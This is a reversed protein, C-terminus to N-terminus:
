EHDLKKLYETVAPLVTKAFDFKKFPDTKDNKAQELYLYGAITRGPVFTGASDMKGIVFMLTESQPKRESPEVTGTKFIAHWQGGPLKREVWGNMAAATGRTGVQEMPRLLNERRWVFNNLPAPMLPFDTQKSRDSPEFRAKVKRGTAIRAATQAMTLNNWHCQSSGLFLSIIDQRTDQFHEPNFEVTQPLCRHMALPIKKPEKIDGILSPFYQQATDYFLGTAQESDPSIAVDFLDKLGKFLLAEGMNHAQPRPVTDNTFVGRGTENLRQIDFQLNKGKFTFEPAKSIPRLVKAWDEKQSVLGLMGLLIIAGDYSKVIMESTTMNETYECGYSGSLWVGAFARHNPEWGHIMLQSVDYDPWFQTAVTSLIVPKITSGVEHNGLNHNLVGREQLTGSLDALNEKFNPDNADLYPWQSMALVDGNFADLVTVALRKTKEIDNERYREGMKSTTAWRELNEQLDRQLSLHFSLNIEKVPKRNTVERNLQDGAKGLLDVFTSLSKETCQRVYRGNRWQTIALIPKDNTVVLLNYRRYEKSRRKVSVVVIDLDNLAEEHTDNPSLQKGNIYVKWTDKSPPMKAKLKLVKGDRRLECLIKNGQLKSSLEVTSGCSESRGDDLSITKPDVDKTMHLSTANDLKYIKLEAAENGSTVIGLPDTKKPFPSPLLFYNRNLRVRYSRPDDDKNGGVRELYFLGSDPDFANSRGNLDALYYREIQTAGSLQSLDIIPHEDGQAENGTTLAESLGSVQKDLADLVDAPLNYTTVNAESLNLLRNATWGYCVFIVISFLLLTATRQGKNVRKGNCLHEIADKWKIHTASLDQVGYHLLWTVCALLCFNVGADSISYLGLMPINQGTFPLANIDALAMYLTNFSFYGGILALPWARWNFRPTKSESFQCAGVFCALGLSIYLGLVALGDWIGHEPLFYTPFVGDSLSVKYQLGANMLPAMGYGLPKIRGQTAYALMQWAQATNEHLENLRLAYHHNKALYLDSIQNTFTAIRYFITRGAVGPIDGLATLPLHAPLFVLIFVTLISLLPAITTINRQTRGTDWVCILGLMPMFGLMYILAGPDHLLAFLIWATAILLFPRMRCILKNRSSKSTDNEVSFLQWTYWIMALVIALYLWSTANYVKMIMLAILLVALPLLPAFPFHAFRGWASDVKITDLQIIWSKFKANDSLYHVLLLVIQLLPPVLCFTLLSVNLADAFVEPDGGSLDSPPLLAVRYALILRVALIGYVMGNALLWSPNLIKKRRERYMTCLLLVCLNGAIAALAIPGTGLKAILGGWRHWFFHTTLETQPQARVFKINVGQMEDGLSISKGIEVLDNKLGDQIYFHSDSSRRVGDKSASSQKAGGSGNGIGPPSVKAYFPHTRNGTQIVYGDMPILNDSSTILFMTALNPPLPWSPSEVLSAEWVRSSDPHQTSVNLRLSKSNNLGFSVRFSLKGAGLSVPADFEGGATEVRKDNYFLAVDSDRLLTTNSMLAVRSTTISRSERVIMLAGLARAVQPFNTLPYGAAWHKKLDADNLIKDLQQADRLPVPTLRVWGSAEPTTASGAMTGQQYELELKDRDQRTRSAGGHVRVSLYRIIDGSKFELRLPVGADLWADSPVNICRGDIRIPLRSTNSRVHWPEEPKTPPVIDLYEREVLSPHVFGTWPKDGSPSTGVFHFIQNDAVYYGSQQLRLKKEQPILPSGERSTGIYHLVLLAIPVMVLLQWLFGVRNLIKQRKSLRLCLVLAIWSGVILFLLAPMLSM